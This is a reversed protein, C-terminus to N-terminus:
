GKSGAGATARALRREEARMQARAKKSIKIWGARRRKAESKHTRHALQHRNLGSQKRARKGTANM